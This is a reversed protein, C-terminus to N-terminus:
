VSRSVRHRRATAVAFAAATLLIVVGTPEPVATVGGPGISGGALPQYRGQGYAAGGGIAVLDFVNTVGDYNFDGQSWIAPQGNGYTASGNVGVLDFVNVEGDLNIDGPAAYAV